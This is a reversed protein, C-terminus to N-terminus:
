HSPKALLRYMPVPVAAVPFAFTISEVTSLPVHFLSMFFMSHIM